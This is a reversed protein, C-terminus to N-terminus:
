TFKNTCAHAQKIKIALLIIVQYRVPLSFPTRRSLPLGSTIAVIKWWELRTILYRYKFINTIVCRPKQIYRWRHMRVPKTSNIDIFVNLPARYCKYRHRCKNNNFMVSDYGLELSTCEYIVSNSNLILGTWHIQIWFWMLFEQEIFGVKKQTGM